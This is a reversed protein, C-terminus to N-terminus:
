NRDVTEYVKQSIRKLIQSGQPFKAANNNFLILIYDTNNAFVTAADSYTNEKGGFLFGVKNVVRVGKPIGAPIADKLSGVASGLTDYFYNRWTPSFVKGRYIDGFVKGVSNPASVHPDEGFSGVGLEALTRSNLVQTGGQMVRLHYQASNNSVRFLEELYQKIQVKSGPPLRGIADARSHKLSNQVAFTDTLKRAGSDLDRITLIGVPLKSISGPWFENSENILVKQGRVFDEFYMGMNGSNSGMIALVENRLKETDLAPLGINYNKVLRGAKADAEPAFYLSVKGHDSKAAKITVKNGEIKVFAPLDKNLLRWGGAIEGVYEKNVTVTVDQKQIDLSSKYAEVTAKTQIGPVKKFYEIFLFGAVVVVVGVFVAYFASRFLRKLIVKSKFV